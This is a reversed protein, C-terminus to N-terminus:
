AESIVITRSRGDVDWSLSFAFHKPKAGKGYVAGELRFATIDPDSLRLDMHGRTSFELRFNEMFDSRRAGLDVHDFAGRNLSIPNTDRGVWKLARPDHDDRAVAHLGAPSRRLEYIKELRVECGEVASRGTNQVRLRIFLLFARDPSELPKELQYPPSSGCTISFRPRLYLTHLVNLFVAVFVVGFNVAIGIWAVVQTNGLFKSIGDNRTRLVRGTLVGVSFSIVLVFVLLMIVNRTRM